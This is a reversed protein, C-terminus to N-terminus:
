IPTHTYGSLSLFPLTIYNECTIHSFTRRKTPQNTISIKFECVRVGASIHVNASPLQLRIGWWGEWYRWRKNIKESNVPLFFLSNYQCIRLDSERKGTTKFWSGKPESLNSHTEDGRRFSTFVDARLSYAPHNLILWDNQTLLLLHM